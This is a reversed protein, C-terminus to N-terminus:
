LVDARYGCPNKIGEISIIAVALRMSSTIFSNVSKATKRKRDVKLYVQEIYALM